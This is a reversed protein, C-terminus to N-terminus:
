KDNGGLAQKEGEVDLSERVLKEAAPVLGSFHKDLQAKDVYMKLSKQEKEFDRKVMERVKDDASFREAISVAVLSNQLIHMPFCVQRQIVAKLDTAAQDVVAEQFLQILTRFLTSHEMGDQVDQDSKNVTNNLITWDDRIMARRWIIQRLAARHKEPLNSLEVARLAWIFENGVVYPDEEPEGEFSVPDSLTLIDVMEEISLTKRNLLSHLAGRLLKKFGPKKDVVRAAFIEMALDEAVNQDLAPGVAADVHKLLESQMDVLALKKDYEDIADENDVRGGKDLQEEVAALSALKALSLETRTNWLDTETSVVEALAKEARGFNQEGIVNNIWSIKDLSQGYNAAKGLFWTLFNQKDDSSQGTVLLSGLQGEKVMHRFNAYAWVKGFRDYYTEARDQVERIKAQYRSAHQPDAHADLTLKHLYETTLTVLLTPDSKNEALQIAGPMNFKRIQMIAGTQFPKKKAKVKAIAEARSQPDPDQESRRIVFIVQESVLRNFLEIVVPFKAAIENLLNKPPADHPKGDFHNVPMKKKQGEKSNPDFTWWEDMYKVLDIIMRHAYQFGEETSTWPRGIEPPYGALLIGDKLIDDGLGYLPANDERFKFAAAYAATWLDMAEKMYIGVMMPDTIDMDNLEGFCDVLEGLLFAIKEVSNYLWFRVRDNEGKEDDPYKQRSEHLAYLCFDLYPTERDAIPYRRQIEEEVKWIAQAAALKEANWLLQYLFNRSLKSRYQKMLHSILDHLAKARLKMQQDISPMSKPLYKSTSALIESSIAMAASQVEEASFADESGRSLDLPNQKMTGFFIAQEIKSKASVTDELVEDENDDHDQLLSLIRIVGFGQVALLLAPKQDHEEKGHALVKYITDEQFRICDQFPEPLAHREMLIQSTPSEQIRALSFLVVAAEFVVFALKQSRSMSLCPKPRTQSGSLSDSFCKIPHVVQVHADTDDVIADVIYYTTRGNESLAVLLIIPFGAVSGRRSQSLESSGLEFDLLTFHMLTPNSGPPVQPALADLLVQRLSLHTKVVDGSALSTEWQELEGDETVIVVTRQGKAAAGAKVRPTGKRRHGILANRISGLFAGGSPSPPKRLFQVGITARGVQDRVTLHAIRGHSTTLIYGSPEANVIEEVVEGTALSPITGQIGSSSQGPLITSADTVSEWYVIKGWKPSVVVLGPQGSIDKATFSAVPLPDNASAPPLPLRFVSVDRSAPVTSSVAYPWVVAETHSLAAAYGNDSSLLCTYPVTPSSRIQDPLAPLQSVTYFDNSSLLLSTAGREPRKEGKKGGRVALVSSAAPQAEAARTETADRTKRFSEVTPQAAIETSAENLPEFTDRRLASRKRKALPLSVNDDTSAPPRTRKPRLSHSHSAVDPSFM